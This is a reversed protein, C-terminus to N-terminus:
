SAYSSHSALSFQLVTHYLTCPPECRGFGWTCLIQVFPAWLVMLFLLGLEEMFSKICLHWLLNYSTVYILLPLFSFKLIGANMETLHVSTTLFTVSWACLGLWPWIWCWYGDFFSMSHRFIGASLTPWRCLLSIIWFTQSVSCCSQLVRDKLHQSDLRRKRKKAVILTYPAAASCIDRRIVSGMSVTPTFNQQPFISDEFM